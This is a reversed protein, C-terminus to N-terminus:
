MATGPQDIDNLSFARLELDPLDHRVHQFVEDFLLIEVSRAAGQLRSALNVVSM